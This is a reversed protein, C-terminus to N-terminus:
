SQEAALIKIFHQKKVDRREDLFRSRFLNPPTFIHFTAQKITPDGAKPPFKTM